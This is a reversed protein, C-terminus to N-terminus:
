QYQHKYQNTSSLQQVLPCLTWRVMVHFLSKDTETFKSTFCLLTNFFKQNKATMRFLNYLIHISMNMM